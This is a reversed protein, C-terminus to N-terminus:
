FLFRLGRRLMWLLVQLWIPHTHCIWCLLSIFSLLNFEGIEIITYVKNGSDASSGFNWNIVLCSARWPHFNFSWVENQNGESHVSRILIFINVLSLLFAQLDFCFLLRWVLEFVSVYYSLMVVWKRCLYFPRLCDWWLGVLDLIWSAGIDSDLKCLEVLRVLFTITLIWLSVTGFLHFQGCALM